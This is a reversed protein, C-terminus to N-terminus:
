YATGRRQSGSAGPLYGAEVPPSEASRSHGTGTASEGNRVPVPSRGHGTEPCFCLFQRRHDDVWQRGEVCSGFM